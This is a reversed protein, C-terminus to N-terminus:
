MAEFLLICDRLITKLLNHSRKFLYTTSNSLANEDRFNSISYELFFFFVSGVENFRIHTGLEGRFEKKGNNFDDGMREDSEPTQMVNANNTPDAWLLDVVPM